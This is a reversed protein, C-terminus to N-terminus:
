CDGATGRRRSQLGRDAWCGPHVQFSFSQRTRWLTLLPFLNTHGGTIGTFGNKLSLRCVFSILPFMDLCKSTLDEAPEALQMNSTEEGNGDWPASRAWRPGEDESTWSRTEESGGMLVTKMPAPPTWHHLFYLGTRSNRVEQCALQIHGSFSCMIGNKTWKHVSFIFPNIHSMFQYISTQYSKQIIIATPFAEMLTFQQLYIKRLWLPTTKIVPNVLSVNFLM